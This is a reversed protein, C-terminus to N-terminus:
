ADIQAEASESDSAGNGSKGLNHAVVGGVLAAVFAGAQGWGTLSYGLALVAAQFALFGPPVWATWGAGSIRRAAFGGAFAAVLYGFIGLANAAAPRNGLVESARARDFVDFPAYPFLQSSLFEFGTQLGIAVALGIIIGIAIRM